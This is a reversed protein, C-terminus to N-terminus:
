HMTFRAAVRSSVAPVAAVRGILRNRAAWAAPPLPRGLAMNIEAQRAARAAARRREREFRRLAHAVPSGALSALVIPALDAADLLGLNMGQGGIPSIEHAADGIVATRGRIMRDVTRSRAGFCSMMSNTWADVEIGTREQVMQALAAASMLEAGQMDDTAVGGDARPALAPPRGPLADQSAAPVRGPLRVVWRRIGGPLPFSEVIGQRELFLAADPGFRTSDAFDGMLYTDSYERLRSPMGLLHRVTSRVGDAAIALSASIRTEGGPTVVDLTVGGGDDHLGTVTASRCLSGGDLERVREELVAETRAQPVSLVFPYRLSVTDFYMEAVEVGGGVAVGRRIKVGEATLRSAVGISDLAALSPPHIGIARSHPNPAARQELVRVNAGRQLLLAALYLGVPGGGVIVVDYV